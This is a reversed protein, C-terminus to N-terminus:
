WEARRYRKVYLKGPECELQETIEEGIKALGTVDEKPEIDVDVRLLHDPLPLRGKHNSKGSVKNREYTIKERNVEPEKVAAMDLPLSIQNPITPVYRESKNGYVIRLLQELQRELKSIRLDKKQNEERLYKIELLPDLTEIV